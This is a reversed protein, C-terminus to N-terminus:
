LVLDEHINCYEKIFGIYNTRWDKEWIQATSDASSDNKAETIIELLEDLSDFAEFPHIPLYAKSYETRWVAITDVLGIAEFLVTSAESLIVSARALTTYIDDNTDINVDFGNNLIIEKAASMEGPHPRFLVKKDPLAQQLKDTLMIYEHTNQSIGIVVIDKSVVKSINNICLNHYPNGISIKEVPCNFQKNWWKGYTFFYDPLGNSLRSDNVIKDAYNYMINYKSIYGHQLEVTLVGKERLKRNFYYYYPFGAGVAIVVETDKSIKKAFWNALSRMNIIISAIYRECYRLCDDDIKRGFIHLMRVNFFKLMAQIQQRDKSYFAKSKIEGSIRALIDYYVRTNYRPDPWSWDLMPQEIAFSEEPFVELFQDVYRNFYLGDVITKRNTSYLVVKSNKLERGSRINHILSKVACRIIGREVKRTRAPATFGLENQSVISYLLFQRAMMWIPVGDYTVFDLIRSDNELELIKKSKEFECM